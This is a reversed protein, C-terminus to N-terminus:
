SLKDIIDIIEDVKGGSDGAAFAERVCGDLHDRLVQRNVKRLIAQTAMLQNSIDVCYRDEDVMKLLGDLQGRATKLLRKVNERDSKM